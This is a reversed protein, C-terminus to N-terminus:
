YVPSMLVGCSSVFVLQTNALMKMSKSEKKKGDSYKTRLAAHDEIGDMDSESESSSSLGEEFFEHVSMEALRKKTPPTAVKHAMM